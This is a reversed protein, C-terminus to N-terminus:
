VDDKRKEGKRVDVKRKDADAKRKRQRGKNWKERIRKNTKIGGGKERSQKRAIDRQEAKKMNDVTARFMIDNGAM